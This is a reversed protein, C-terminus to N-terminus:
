KNKLVFDTFSGKGDWMKKPDRTENSSRIVGEEFEKTFGNDTIRKGQVWTKVAVKVGENISKFWGMKVQNDLASKVDNSINITITNM